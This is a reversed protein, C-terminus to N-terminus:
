SPSLWVEGQPRLVWSRYHSPGDAAAVAVTVWRRDMARGAKEGSVGRWIKSVSTSMRTDVVPVAALASIRAQMHGAYAGVQWDRQWHARPRARLRQSRVEGESEAAV